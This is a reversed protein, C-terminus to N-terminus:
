VTRGKRLSGCGDCRTWPKGTTLRIAPCFSSRGRNPPTAWMPFSCCDDRKLAPSFRYTAPRIDRHLSSFSSGPVENYVTRAVMGDEELERLQQTMMKQTISPLARKLESSRLPGRTLHCLMLMKWKGGIIDLTAEAPINYLKSASRAVLDGGEMLKRATM